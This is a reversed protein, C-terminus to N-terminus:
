ALRVPLDNLNVLIPNLIGLPNCSPPGVLEIERTRDLLEEFLITMERRALNAGLCFHAGTGGFSLVPNPTRGIDFRFPDYFVDADRNASPYWITVREGETIRVGRLETDRTARRAVYALPSARRLMEEVATPIASRDRRLAELQDPHDLLALLGVSMANRTTESGAIILLLFFLDLEMQTTATRGGTDSAVEATSLTGPDLPAGLREDWRRYNEAADPYVAKDPGGHVRLDGQQDGVLNGHEVPTRRDIPEKWIATRVTRGGWEIDSPMGVNVSVVSGGDTAERRGITLHTESVRLRPSHSTRRHRGVPM